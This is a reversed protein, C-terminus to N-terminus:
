FLLTEFFVLTLKTLKFLYIFFVLLSLGTEPDRDTTHIAFELLSFYLCCCFFPLPRSRETPHRHGGLCCLTSVCM